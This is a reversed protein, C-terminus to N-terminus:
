KIAKGLETSDRPSLTLSGILRTHRYRARICRSIVSFCAFFFCFILVEASVCACVGEVFLILSIFSFHARIIFVNLKTSITFENNYLSFFFTLGYVTYSVCFLCLLFTFDSEDSM